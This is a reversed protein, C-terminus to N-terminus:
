EQSEEGGAGVVGEEEEEFAGFPGLREAAKVLEM